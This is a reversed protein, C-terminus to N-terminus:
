RIEKTITLGYVNGGMYYANLSASLEKLQKKILEM